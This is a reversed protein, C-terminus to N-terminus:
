LRVQAAIIEQEERDVKMVVDAKNVRGTLLLPEHDPQCYRLLTTFREAVDKSLTWSLGDRNFDYCGRYVNIVEPLQDYAARDDEDMLADLLERDAGMLMSRLYDAHAAINDCSSWVQGLARFWDDPFMWPQMAVAYDMRNSSEVGPGYLVSVALEAEDGHSNDLQFLWQELPDVHHQPQANM